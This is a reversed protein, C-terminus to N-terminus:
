LEGSDGGSLPGGVQGQLVRDDDLSLSRFGSDGMPTWRM